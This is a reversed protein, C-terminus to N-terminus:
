AGAKAATQKLAIGLRKFLHHDAPTWGTSTKFERVLLTLFEPRVSHQLIIRHWPSTLEGVNDAEVKGTIGKPDIEFVAYVPLFLQTKAIRDAFYTDTITFIRGAANARLGQALISDVADPSTVHYLNRKLKPAHVTPPAM